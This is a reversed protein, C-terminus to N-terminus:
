SATNHSSQKIAKTRAKKHADHLKKIGEVTANPLSMFPKPDIDADDHMLVSLQYVLDFDVIDRDALKDFIYFKPKLMNLCGSHNNGVNGDGTNKDGTNCSGTNKDGTNGDGTNKNGTNGDGTNWSGTNWDGTNKNGTNMNGGTKIEEIFRIRKAVHKLDAGPGKSLLVYMAEVKFMRGSDYYSWPGSPYECFHFGNQCLELEGDCTYWKGIEYQFGRCCMNEDTAKYGTIPGNVLKDM